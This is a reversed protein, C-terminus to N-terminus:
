AEAVDALWWAAVAVGVLLALMQPGAISANAADGAAVFVAAAVAAGIGAGLCQWRGRRRERRERRRLQDLAGAADLTCQRAAQEASVRRLVAATFGDDPLDPECAALWAGLVRDDDRTM